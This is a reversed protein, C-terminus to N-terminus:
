VRASRALTVPARAPASAIAPVPTEADGPGAPVHERVIESVAPWDRRGWRITGWVREHGWFIVIKFTVDVFGLLAATKVSGTMVFGVVTTFLSAILRYSLGKVVSRLHSDYGIFSGSM